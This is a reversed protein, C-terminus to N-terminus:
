SVNLPPQKSTAQNHGLQGSADINHMIEIRRHISWM